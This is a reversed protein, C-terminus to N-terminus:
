LIRDLLEKGDAGHESMLPRLLPPEPLKMLYIRLDKAIRAGSRIRINDNHGHKKQLSDTQRTKTEVNVGQPTMLAPGAELFLELFVQNLFDM